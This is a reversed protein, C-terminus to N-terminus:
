SGCSFVGGACAYESRDGARRASSFIAKVHYSSGRNRECAGRAHQARLLCLLSVKILGDSALFESEPREKIIIKFMHKGARHM